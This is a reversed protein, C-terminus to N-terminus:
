EVRKQEQSCADNDDEPSSEAQCDSDPVKM